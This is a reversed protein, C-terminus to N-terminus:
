HKQHRRKVEVNKLRLNEVKTLAIGSYKKTQKKLIRINKNRSKKSVHAWEDRVVGVGGCRIVGALSSTPHLAGPTHASDSCGEHSEKEASRHCPGSCRDGYNQPYASHSADGHNCSALFGSVQPACELQLQAASIPHATGSLPTDGHPMCAQSLPLLCRM